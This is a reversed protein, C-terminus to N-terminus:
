ALAITEGSITDESPIKGGADAQIPKRATTDWNAPSNRVELVLDLHRQVAPWLSASGFLVGFLTYAKV